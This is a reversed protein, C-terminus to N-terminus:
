TEPWLLAHDPTPRARKPPPGEEVPVVLVPVPSSALLQATISRHFLEGLYSRTRALVVVLDANTDQIADLLGAVVVRNQYGRPTLQRLSPTLGSRQVTRLAAACSQNDEGGSVHAVTLTAGAASLQALLTGVIATAAPLHFEERDAAVVIQRPLAPPRSSLPVLLVPLQLARLLELTAELMPELGGQDVEPRGLVFLAPPQRAALDLATAPLLDTALEVTAPARLQQAQQTLLWGTDFDEALEQRRWAEGAFVYPDFLSTRNVHLLVLQGGLSSALADAYQLAHQAAPYFGSLVILTFNM